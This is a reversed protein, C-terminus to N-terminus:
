SASYLYLSKINKTFKIGELDKTTDRNGLIYPSLDNWIKDKDILPFNEVFFSAYEYYLELEQLPDYFYGMCVNEAYLFGGILHNATLNDKKQNHEIAFSCLARKANEECEGIDDCEGNKLDNLIKEGEVLFQKAVFYEEEFIKTLKLSKPRVANLVNQVEKFAIQKEKIAYFHAADSICRFKKMTFLPIFSRSLRQM